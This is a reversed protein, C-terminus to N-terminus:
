SARAPPFINKKKVTQLGEQYRSNKPAMVLGEEMM